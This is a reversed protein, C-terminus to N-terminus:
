KYSLRSLNSFAKNTNAEWPKSGHGKSRQMTQLPSGPCLSSLCLWVVHPQEMAWGRHGSWIGLDHITAESACLQLLQLIWLHAHMKHGRLRNWPPIELTFSHCWFLFLLTQERHTNHTEAGKIVCPWIQKSKSCHRFPTLTRELDGQRKSLEKAALDSTTNWTSRDTPSPLNSCAGLMYLTCALNHTHRKKVHCGQPFKMQLPRMPCFYIGKWVWASKNPVTLTLAKIFQGTPSFSAFSYAFHIKANAIWTHVTSPIHGASPGNTGHVSQMCNWKTAIDSLRPFFAHRMYMAHVLM